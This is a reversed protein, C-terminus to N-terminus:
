SAAVHSHTHRCPSLRKVVSQFIRPNCLPPLGSLEVRAQGAQDSLQLLKTRGKQRRRPSIVDEQGLGDGAGVGSGGGSGSHKHPQALETHTQCEQLVGSALKDSWDSTVSGAKLSQIGHNRELRLTSKDDSDMAYREPRSKPPPMPAHRIICDVSSSRRRRRRLKQVRTSNTETESPPSPLHIVSSSRRRRRLKPLKLTSSRQRAPYPLSGIALHAAVLESGRGDHELSTLCNSHILPSLDEDDKELPTLRNSHILPSLDEDEDYATYSDYRAPRKTAAEAHPRTYVPKNTATPSPTSPPTPTKVTMCRAIRDSLRRERPYAAPEAKNAAADLFSQVRVSEAYLQASLQQNEAANVAAAAQLRSNEEQLAVVQSKLEGAGEYRLGDASSRTMQRSSQQSSNLHLPSRLIPIEDCDSSDDLTGPPAISMLELKVECTSLDIEQSTPELESEVRRLLLQSEFGEEVRAQLAEEEFRQEADGCLWGQPWPFKEM